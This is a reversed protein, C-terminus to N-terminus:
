GEPRPDPLRCRRYLRRQMGHRRHLKRQASKEAEEYALKLYREHFENDLDALTKEFEQSSM